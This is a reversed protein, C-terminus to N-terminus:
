EGTMHSWNTRQRRTEQNNLLVVCSSCQPVPSSSVKHMKTSAPQHVKTRRNRRKTECSRCEWKTWVLRQIETASGWLTINGGVHYLDTPFIPQRWSPNRKCAHWRRNGGAKGDGEACGGAGVGPWIVPISSQLKCIETLLARNHYGLLLSSENASAQLLGVAEKCAAWSYRITTSM